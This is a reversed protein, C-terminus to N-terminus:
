ILKCTDNVVISSELFCGQKAAGVPKAEQSGNGLVELEVLVPNLYKTILDTNGIKFVIKSISSIGARAVCVCVCVCVCV